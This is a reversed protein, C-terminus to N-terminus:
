FPSKKAHQKQHHSDNVRRPTRKTTAVERALPSSKQSKSLRSEKTVIHVYLIMVAVYLYLSSALTVVSDHNPVNRKVIRQSLQRKLCQVLGDEYM